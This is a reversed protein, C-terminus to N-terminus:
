RPPADAAFPCRGPEARESPACDSPARIVSPEVRVGPRDAEPVAAVVIALIALEDASTPPSAEEGWRVLAETAGGAALAAARWASREPAAALDQALRAVRTRDEVEDLLQRVRYPAYGSRDGPADPALAAVVDADFRPDDPATPLDQRTARGTGNRLPERLLCRVAADRLRLRYLHECIGGGASRDRRWEDSPGIWALADACDGVPALGVAAGAPDSVVVRVLEDGGRVRFAVHEADACREVALEEYRVRGSALDAYSWVQDVEGRLSAGDPGALEWGVYVADYALHPGDDDWGAGHRWGRLTARWAWPETRALERAEDALPTRGGCGLLWGLM